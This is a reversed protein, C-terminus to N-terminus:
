SRSSSSPSRSHCCSHSPRSRRHNSSHQVRPLVQQMKLLQTWAAVFSKAQRDSFEKAAVLESHLGKIQSMLRANEVEKDDLNSKIKKLNEERISQKLKEKSESQMTSLKRKLNNTSQNLDAIQQKFDIKQGLCGDLKSKHQSKADTIHKNLDLSKEQLPALKVSQNSKVPQTQMNTATKQSIELEKKLRGVETNSTALEDPLFKKEAMYADFQAAQGQLRHHKKEKEKLKAQAELLKQKTHEYLKEKERLQM